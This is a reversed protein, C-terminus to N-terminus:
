NDDKVIVYRYSTLPNERTGEPCSDRRHKESLAEEPTDFIEESETSDWGFITDMVVLIGYKVKM